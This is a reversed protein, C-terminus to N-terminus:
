VRFTLCPKVDTLLDDNEDLGEVSSNGLDTTIIM